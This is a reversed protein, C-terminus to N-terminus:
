PLSIKWDKKTRDITIMGDKELAELLGHYWDLNEKISNHIKEGISIADVSTGETLSRLQQVIKGRYIRDPVAREKKETKVQAKKEGKKPENMKFASKCEHQVPCSVCQPKRATCVLSGFDMLSQNWDYGKGHPVLTKALEWIEKEPRMQSFDKMSYFIRSFVRRINIDVLPVDKGFAFCAVAHATYPGIGDLKVLQQPDQPFPKDCVTQALRQLRLIRNNYGMGEWDRIVQGVPAKALAHFDPYRMLFAPYKELVRPVQTQQLMVESVLIKYPDRVKRWPLDRGSHAYWRLILHQIQNNKQEKM